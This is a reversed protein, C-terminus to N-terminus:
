GLRTQDLRIIKKSIYIEFGITIRKEKGKSGIHEKFLCSASLRAVTNEYQTETLIKTQRANPRGTPMKVKPM